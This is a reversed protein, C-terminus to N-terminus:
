LLAVSPMIVVLARSYSNGALRGIWGGITESLSTQHLAGSLVFIAAVVIAPESSFGSLADQSSLVGSTYLALVILMAVLDNRIRETILLAFAAILIVFLSIQQPTLQIEPM